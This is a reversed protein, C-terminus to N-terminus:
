GNISWWTWAAIAIWVLGKVLFILFGAIGLKKLRSKTLSTNKRNDQNM